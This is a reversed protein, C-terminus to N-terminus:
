LFDVGARTLVPKQGQPPRPKRKVLLRIMTSKDRPLREAIESPGAGNSYCERALRIEEPSLKTFTRKPTARELKGNCVGTAKMGQVTKVSKPIAGMPAVPRFWVKLLFVSGWSVHM